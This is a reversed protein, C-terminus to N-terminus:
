RVRRGLPYARRFLDQAAGVHQHIRRRGVALIHHVRTYHRELTYFADKRFLARLRLLRAFEPRHQRFLVFIRAADKQFIQGRPSYRGIIPIDTNFLVGM